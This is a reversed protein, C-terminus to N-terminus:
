SAISDGRAQHVAWHLDGHRFPKAIVRSVGVQHLKAVDHRRPFNLLVILPTDVFCERLDAVKNLLSETLSLADICILDLRDVLPRDQGEESIWISHCGVGELATALMEFQGATAADVAVCCCGRDTDHSVFDQAIQVQDVATATPPAHWATEEGLRFQRVFQDLRAPWQHWFVQKVGELRLGSREVGECWSSLLNIIPVLPFACRIEEIVAQGIQGRRSQAVVVLDFPTGKWHGVEALPVLLTAVESETVISRFDDHRYDGTLLIRVTEM